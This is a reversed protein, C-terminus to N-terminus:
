KEITFKLVCSGNLIFEDGPESYGECDIDILGFHLDPPLNGDCHWEIIRKCYVMEPYFNDCGRKCQLQLQASRDRNAYKNKYFVLERINNELIGFSHVTIIFTLFLIILLKM